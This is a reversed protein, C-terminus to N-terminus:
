IQQGLMQLVKHAIVEIAQDAARDLALGDLIAVEAKEATSLIYDQMRRISEFHKLYYRMPRHQATQQDRLYFHERHEQEDPVAVIMPIVIADPMETSMLYGPAVHVGEVVVSVHEAISRAIIADLGVSVQQIQERFGQLLQQESPQHQYEREEPPLLVEWANFTSVHLTPLLSPSIMARMVQRVSDSSVVRTIGLRYAIESALYSKGTGTTGGILIVLPKPPQRLVHMTTYRLAAEEGLEAYLIQEIITRLEHRRVSVVQQHRLRQETERAVRHAYMPSIGSALLSQALIGKSFPMSLDVDNELVVVAPLQHYRNLYTNQAETGLQQALVEATIIELEQLSINTLGRRRLTKDVEKALTYAQKLPFSAGELSRALIGRSFPVKTQADVVTIDEFTPTQSEIRQGFDNGLLLGTYHAVLAKLEDPSIVRQTQDLLHQEVSRAIAVGASQEVGANLLSEIVLGKSFPWRYEGSLVYIERM